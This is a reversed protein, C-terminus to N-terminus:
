TASRQWEWRGGLRDLTEPRLWLLKDAWFVDPKEREAAALIDRNPVAGGWAGCNVQPCAEAGACNESEMNM